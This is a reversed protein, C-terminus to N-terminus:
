ALGPPHFLRFTRHPDLRALDDRLDLMLEALHPNDAVDAWLPSVACFTDAWFPCIEGTCRESRGVAYTLQCLRPEM